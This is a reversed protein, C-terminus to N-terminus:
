SPLYEAPAPGMHWPAYCLPHNESVQHGSVFTNKVDESEMMRKKRVTLEQCVQYVVEKKIATPKLEAQSCLAPM